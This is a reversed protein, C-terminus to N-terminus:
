KKPQKPVPCVRNMSTNFLGMAWCMPCGRMAVMSVIGFVAAAALAVLSPYSLLQYAALLSGMGITGRALHETLSASAFLTRVAM